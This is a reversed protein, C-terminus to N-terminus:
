EITMSDAGEVAIPELAEPAGTSPAPAGERFEVEDEGSCGSLALGPLVLLAAAAFRFLRRRIM